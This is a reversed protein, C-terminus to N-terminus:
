SPNWLTRQEIDLMTTGPKIITVNKSPKSNNESLSRRLLWHVPALIAFALSDESLLDINSILSTKLSRPYYLHGVGSM